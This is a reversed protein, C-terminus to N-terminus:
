RDYFYLQKDASNIWFDGSVLNSPQGPSVIPSGAPRWGNINGTYVQLRLEASNYWVQGTLPRSPPSSNSFNELLYVFNENLSEGFSTSNKGILKLDTTEDISGDLVDVIKTGDSKNITYTM